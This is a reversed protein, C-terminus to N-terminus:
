ALPKTVGQMLSLLAKSLAYPYPEFCALPKTVGQM